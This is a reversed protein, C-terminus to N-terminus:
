HPRLNLPGYEGSYFYRIPYEEVNKWIRSEAGKYQKRLRKLFDQIDKKVLNKDKLNQENYTLTVFCNNKWQKSELLGRLGWEKSKELRCGICKGCPIILKGKDNETGKYNEFKEKTTFSIDKTLQTIGKKNKVVRYTYFAYKPNFCTM